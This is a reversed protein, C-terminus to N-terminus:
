ADEMGPMEPSVVTGGEFPADAIRKADEESVPAGADPGAAGSDPGAAGSESAKKEKKPSPTTSRGNTGLLTELASGPFNRAGLIKDQIFNNSEIHLADWHALQPNDFLFVRLNKENLAPCDYPKKSRPDLPPLTKSLDICTYEKGTAKSKRKVITFLYSKGVLQLWHTANKEWNLIAFNKFANSRDTRTVSFPFLHEVYPTGDENCWGEDYLEVSLAIEPQFAALGTKPKGDHMQQQDGYEVYGVIRGLCSGEQLEKKGGGGASQETMDLGTEVAQQQLAALAALDIVNSM